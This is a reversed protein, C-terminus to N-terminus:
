MNEPLPTGSEIVKTGNTLQCMQAQPMITMTPVTVELSAENWNKPHTLPQDLSIQVGQPIAGVETTQMTGM